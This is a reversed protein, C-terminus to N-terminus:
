PFKYKKMIRQHLSLESYLKNIFFLKLTYIDKRDSKYLKNRRSLLINEILKKKKIKSCGFRQVSTDKCLHKQLIYLNFPFM